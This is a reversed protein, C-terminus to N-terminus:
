NRKNYGSSVVKKISVGYKNVLKIFYIQDAEGELDISYKGTTGQYYYDEIQRVLTGKIDQVYINVFTDYDFVYEINVFGDFPVPYARFDASSNDSSIPEPAEGCGLPEELTSTTDFPETSDSCACVEECTVAHIIIWFEGNVEVDRLIFDDIYDLNQFGFTYQGPATTPKGSSSTPYKDCGIYVHAQKMVYGEFLNYQVDVYSGDYSVTADGVYAANEYDCDSAGQYLPLTYTGPDVINNTWGWNSFGDDIFCSEAGDLRGYATGCNDYEEIELTLTTSDTDTNDCDDSIDFTYVAEWSCSGTQTIAPAGSSQSGGDACNDDWDAFLENPFVTEPDIGTEFCGLDADAPVNTFYPDTTDQITYTYV